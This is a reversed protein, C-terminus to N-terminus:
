TCDLGTGAYSQPKGPCFYATQATLASNLLKSGDQNLGHTQHHPHLLLVRLLMFLVLCILSPSRSVSDKCVDQMGSDMLFGMEGENRVLVSLIM